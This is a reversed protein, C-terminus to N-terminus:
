PAAVRDKEMPANLFADLRAIEDGAGAHDAALRTYLAAIGEYIARGAPDDGVFRSIEEMEGVWRYAKAYMGPMLRGLWDRLAPQSASFEALLERDIGHRSAGLIMTSALAILGKTIGAYAMKLASAAGIPRDLVAIELGCQRLAELERAAPGCVYITPGPQGPKPPGGIISGDIYKCSAAIVIEGIRGATEPTVANCDVFIPKRASAAFAPAYREALTIADSPPLVSLFIDAAALEADAAPRMGAAAARAASAASRGELSTLVVAGNDALRRGMAAGMNGPAVLGIVPKTM